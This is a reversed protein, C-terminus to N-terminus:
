LVSLHGGKMGHSQGQLQLSVKVGEPALAKSDLM